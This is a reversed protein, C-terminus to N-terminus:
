NRDFSRPAASPTEEDLTPTREPGPDFTNPAFRNSLNPISEPPAALARLAWEARRGNPSGLNERAILTLERTIAELREGAKKEAAAKLRDQLQKQLTERDLQDVEASQLKKLLQRMEIVTLDRLPRDELAPESVNLNVPAAADLPVAEQATLQHHAVGATIGLFTLVWLGKKMVPGETHHPICLIGWLKGV